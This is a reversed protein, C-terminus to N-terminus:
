MAMSWVGSPLPRRSSKSYMFGSAAAGAADDHHEGLLQLLSRPDITAVPRQALRLLPHGAPPDDVPRRDRESPEPKSTLRRDGRSTRTRSGSRRLTSRASWGSA